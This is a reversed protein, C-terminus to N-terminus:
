RSSSTARSSPKARDRVSVVIRWGILCLALFGAAVLVFSRATGGDFVVRRMLMGGGLVIAWLGIGIRWDAARKWVQLVLWGLALAILFPAATEVLKGVGTDQDHERQGISVFLVITATDLAAALPTRPDM